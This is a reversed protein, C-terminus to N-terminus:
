PTLRGATMLGLFLPQGRVIVLFAVVVHAFCGGVALFCNAFFEEQNMQASKFFGCFCIIIVFISWRSLGGHSHALLEPANMALPTLTKRLFLFLIFRRLFLGLFVVFLVAVFSAFDIALLMAHDMKAVAIYRDRSIRPILCVYMCLYICM